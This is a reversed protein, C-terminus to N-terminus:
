ESVDDVEVGKSGNGGENWEGGKHKRWERRQGNNEGNGESRHVHAGEGRRRKVRRGGCSKRLVIMMPSVVSVFIRSARSSDVPVSTLTRVVIMCPSEGTLTFQSMHAM